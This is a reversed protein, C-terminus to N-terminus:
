RHEIAVVLSAVARPNDPEVTFSAERSNYSISSLLNRGVAASLRQELPGRVSNFDRMIAHIDLTQKAYLIIFYEAGAEADLSFSRDEGPLVVASGRYNLLPSVGTQPFVLVPTYFNDDRDPRFVAFAYVYASERAGAIVRFQTGETYVQATKYYGSSFVLDANKPGAPDLIEIQAFGDFKIVDSYIALNEIMEYSEMVFDTFAKYPVWMYGGNGWKRGWSNILEFAGGSKNDDYGIVCM